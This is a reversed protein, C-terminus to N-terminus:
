RRTPPRDLIYGIDIIYMQRGLDECTADVCVIRGNRSLRPHLDVRYTNTPATSKLKALPVFRKTPIHYMFLYQSGSIAYTDSVIWDGGTSSMGILSLSSGLPVAAYQTWSSTGQIWLSNAGTNLAYTRYQTYPVAKQTSGFYLM